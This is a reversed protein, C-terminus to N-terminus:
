FAHQPKSILWFAEQIHAGLVGVMARFTAYHSAGNAQVRDRFPYGLTWVARGIQTFAAKGISM